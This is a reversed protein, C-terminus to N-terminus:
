NYMYWEYENWYKNRFWEAVVSCCFDVIGDKQSGVQISLSVMQKIVEILQRSIIDAGSASLLLKEVFVNGPLKSIFWLFSFSLPYDVIKSDDRQLLQFAYCTKWFLNRTRSENEVSLYTYISQLLTDTGSM